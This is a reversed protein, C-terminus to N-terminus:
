GKTGAETEPRPGFLGEVTEEGSEIAARISRLSDLDGEAWDKRERNLTGELELLKVGLKTDFFKVADSIRETLPKEPKESKAAERRQASVARRAGQMLVGTYWAPLVDLIANRVAKSGAANVQMAEWRQTQEASKAFAAPAPQLTFSHDLSTIVVKALDIVEARLTITRGERRVERVGMMIGGWEQMLAQAGKISIGEVTQGGMPFSYYADAALMEGIEKAAEQLEKRPPRTLRAARGALVDLRAADVPAPLQPPEEYDMMGEVTRDSASMERHTTQRGQQPM